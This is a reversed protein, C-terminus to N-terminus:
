NELMEGLKNTTMHAHQVHNTETYRKGCTWLKHKHNKTESNRKKHKYKVSYIKM